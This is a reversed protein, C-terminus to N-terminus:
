KDTDPPLLLIQFSCGREKVHVPRPDALLKRYMPYGAAFASIRYDGAPLGDFLFRGKGDSQAYRAFDNSRLELLAAPFPSKIKDTEHMPDFDSQSQADTTTFGELRGSQKGGNKYFFLYALDEGADSLRRTRTCIGTFIYDSSEETNAYVLYTEGPQFDVGCDGFPNWVEMTTTKDDDDSDKAKPQRDDDDDEYKFLTQVRFRVKVGRSLAATFTSTVGLTTKAANALNKEDEPLDPFAKLYADKLRALTTQSPHNQANLYAENLSQLASTNALNWRNLFNPEISEVTGVFVVNSAAVENCSSLSIQCKCALAAPPLSCSLLCLHLLYQRGRNRM